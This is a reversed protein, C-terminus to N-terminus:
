KNNAKGLQKVNSKKLNRSKQSKKTRQNLLGDIANKIIDDTSRKTNTSINKKLGTARKQISLNDSTSKRPTTSVRKTSNGKNLTATKNQNTVKGTTKAAASTNSVTARNTVTEKSNDVKSLVKAETSTKVKAPIGEKLSEMEITPATENKLDAVESTAELPEIVEVDISNIEEPEAEDIKITEINSEADNDAEPIATTEGLADSTNAAEDIIAAEDITSPEGGTPIGNEYAKTATIRIHGEQIAKIVDITNMKSAATATAPVDESTELDSKESDAVEVTGAALEADALLMLKNNIRLESRQRYFEYTFGIGGAALIAISQLAFYHYRNQIEVLLFLTVTGVFFIAFLVAINDKKILSIAGIGSLFVILLYFFHNLVTLHEFMVERDSTMTEEKNMRVINSHVAYDDNFWVLYFKQAMLKLMGVPNEKVHQIAVEMSADHTANASETEEYVKYLFEMGEESYSGESEINTGVMLSYGMAGGSAIDKEIAQSIGAFILQSTIFYGIIVWIVRFFGKSLLITKLKVDMINTFELKKNISLLCIVYAILLILGMPRIASSIAISIGCFLHLLIIRFANLKTNLNIQLTIVALYAAGYLLCTFSAEAGNINSFIIQSPWYFSILMASFAAIRGAIRRGIGYCFLATLTSFGVNTYLCVNPNTGFIKMVISLIYAYGYTHPFLGIVLINTEKRM